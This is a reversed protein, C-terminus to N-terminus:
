KKECVRLKASHARKNNLIEEFRPVLPAKTVEVGNKEFFNKVIRDELSHFTLVVLRGKPALMEYSDVLGKELSNLEDNVAIRLAQFIRRAPHKPGNAIAGPVSKYVIKILDGVTEIPARLLAKKIQSAIRGASREEGYKFFLKVLEKETLGNILDKAKVGLEKDMRMDLEQNEELYSFGRDEVDLQRSSMGLDMLIGDAKRGVKEVLKTIDAFNGHVITWKADDNAEPYFSKVFDIAEQDQDISLLLGNEGLQKLIEYSHGGEGLTCDIYFGDAKIKLKEIVEELMVPIHTKSVQKSKAM